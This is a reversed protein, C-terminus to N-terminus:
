HLPLLEETYDLQYMQNTTTMRIRNDIKEIEVVEEMDFGYLVLKNNNLKYGRYNLPSQWKEVTLQRQVSETELNLDDSLLSDALSMPASTTDRNIIEFMEASLLVERAIIIEEQNVVLSDIIASDNTWEEVELQLSDLLLTDDELVKEKLKKGNNELVKVEEKNAKSEKETENIVIPPSETRGIENNEMKSEEPQSSNMVFYGISSVAIGVLSGAIFSIWNFSRM